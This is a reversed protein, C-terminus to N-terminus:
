HPSKSPLFRQYTVYVRVCMKSMSDNETKLESTLFYFLFYVDFRACDNEGM